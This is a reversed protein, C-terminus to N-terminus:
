LAQEKQKEENLDSAKLVTDSYCLPCHTSSALALPSPTPLPLLHGQRHDKTRIRCVNEGAFLEASTLQVEQM